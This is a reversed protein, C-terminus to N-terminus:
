FVPFPRQYPAQGAFQASSNFSWIRYGGSIKGGGGGAADGGRILRRGGLDCARWPRLCTADGLGRWTGEVREVRVVVAWRRPLSGEGGEGGHGGGGRGFDYDLFRGGEERDVLVDVFFAPGEQLEVVGGDVRERPVGGAGVGGVEVGEGGEEGDGLVAREEDTAGKEDGWLERM